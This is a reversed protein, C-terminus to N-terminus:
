RHAVIQRVRDHNSPAAANRRIDVHDAIVFQRHVELVYGALEVRRVVADVEVLAQLAHQNRHFVRHRDGRGAGEVREAALHEGQGVVAEVDRRGVRAGCPAADIQLGIRVVPAVLIRLPHLDLEVARQVRRRNRGDGDAVPQAVDGADDAVAEAIELDIGDLLDCDGGGPQPKLRSLQIAGPVSVGHGAVVHQIQIRQGPVVLLAGGQGRVDHVIEATGVDDCQLLDLVVVAGGVVAGGIGRQCQLRQDIGNLAFASGDVCEEIHRRDVACGPAHGTAIDAVGEEVIRCPDVQHAEDRQRRGFQGQGADAIRIGKGAGPVGEDTHELEVTVLEGHDVVVQGRAEARGRDEAPRLGEHLGALIRPLCLDLREVVIDVDQQLLIVVPRDDHEAVQVGELKGIVDGFDQGARAPVVIVIVIPHQGVQDIAQVVVVDVGEVELAVRLDQIM